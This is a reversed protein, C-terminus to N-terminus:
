EIKLDGSLLCDKRLFLFFIAYSSCCNMSYSIQFFSTTCIDDILQLDVSISFYSTQVLIANFQPAVGALAVFRESSNQRVQGAQIPADDLAVKRNSRMSLYEDETEADENAFDDSEQEQGFRKKKTFRLEAESSQEILRQHQKTRSCHTLKKRAYSECSSM